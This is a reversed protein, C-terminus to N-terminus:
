DAGIYYDSVDANTENGYFDFYGNPGCTNRAVLSYKRFTGGFSISHNGKTKSVTDEVGYNTEPQYLNLWNTGISFGGADFFLTPMSMPYGPPGSAVLGGTTPDTNYGYTAYSTIPASAQNATHEQWRFFNARAVNVLSSGLTKTNSLVFFQSRSPNTIPYGPLTPGANDGYVPQNATAGDYHYYFSWDGTKKNDFDIRQAWNLDIISGVAAANDYSFGDALNATPIQSITLKAVPDMYASINHAPVVNGNIDQTTTATGLQNYLTTGPIITGGGRSQLTSAWFAAQVPTDLIADSFIGNREDNSLMQVV